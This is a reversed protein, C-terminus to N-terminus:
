AESSGATMGAFASAIHKEDVPEDSARSESVECVFHLVKELPHQLAFTM